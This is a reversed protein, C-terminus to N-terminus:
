QPSRTVLDRRAAAQRMRLDDMWVEVYPGLIMGAVFGAAAGAVHALTNRLATTMGKEGPQGIIWTIDPQGTEPAAEATLDASRDRGGDAVRM